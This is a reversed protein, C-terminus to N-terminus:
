GANSFTWLGFLLPLLQAMGTLVAGGLALWEIAERVRRPRRAREPLPRAFVEAMVRATFDEHPALLGASLERDIRDTTDTRGIRDIGDSM